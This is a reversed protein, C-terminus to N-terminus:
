AATWVFIILFFGMSGVHNTIWVAVKDLTSPKIDKIEPRMANRKKKFEELSIPARVEEM